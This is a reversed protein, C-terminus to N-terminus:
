PGFSQHLGMGHRMCWCWQSGDILIQSACSAARIGKLQHVECALECTFCECEGASICTCSPCAPLGHMVLCCLCKQHLSPTCYAHSRSVSGTHALHHHCHCYSGTSHIFCPMRGDRVRDSRLSRQRWVRESSRVVLLYGRFRRVAIYGERVHAKKLTFTKKGVPIFMGVCIHCLPNILVTIFLWIRHFHVGKESLKGVGHSDEFSCSGTRLQRVM